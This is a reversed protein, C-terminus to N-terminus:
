MMDYTKSTVAKGGEGGGNKKGLFGLNAPYMEYELYGLGLTFILGAERASSRNRVFAAEQGNGAASCEQDSALM